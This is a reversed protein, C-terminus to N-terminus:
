VKTENLPIDVVREMPVVGNAHIETIIVHQNKVLEDNLTFYTSRVKCTEDIVERATNNVFLANVLDQTNLTKM